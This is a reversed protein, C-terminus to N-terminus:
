RSREISNHQRRRDTRSQEVALGLAVELVADRTRSNDRMALQAAQVHSRRQIDTIGRWSDREAFHALRAAEVPQRTWMEHVDDLFNWHEAHPGQQWSEALRRTEFRQQYAQESPDILGSSVEAKLDAVRAFDARMAEEHERQM